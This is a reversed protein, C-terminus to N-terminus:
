LPFSETAPLNATSCLPHQTRVSRREGLVHLVQFDLISLFRGLRIKSVGKSTSISIKERLFFDGIHPIVAHIMCDAKALPRQFPQKLFRALKPDRVANPKEQHEM